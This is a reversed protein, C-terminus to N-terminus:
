VKWWRPTVTFNTITNDYNITNTGSVLKPLDSGLSIINNSSVVEGGSFFYCEGIECDIYNTETVLSKTSHAIIKSKQILCDSSKITTTIYAQTTSSTGSISITIEGNTADFQITETLTYSITFSVTSGGGIKRCAISGSVTNTATKNTGVNATITATTTIVNPTYSSSFSANSDTPQTQTGYVGSISGDTSQFTVKSSFEISIDIGDGNNLVSLDATYSKPSVFSASTDVVVVDGLVANEIDISYGNFSINGYGKVALLPESEFLTPNALTGGDAVSVATEGSTLWRQPKCDFTIQAEGAILFDHELELGSLYVALRYENPNYDDSLRVYGVKSCLWNRFASVKDAFNEENDDFMGVRYTVSINEFKGKDLAFNGNRGPIEVMEVSREPANFVGEGTLYVGYDASSKGDFTFTKYPSIVGM